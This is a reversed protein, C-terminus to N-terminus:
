SPGRFSPARQSKVARTPEGPAPLAALLRWANLPILTGHLVVVPGLGLGIGYVLFAINSCLAAIRLPVMDKMYFTVVVLASATYGAVDLFTM